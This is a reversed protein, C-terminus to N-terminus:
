AFYLPHCLSLITMSEQEVPTFSSVAKLCSTSVHSTILWCNRRSIIWSRISDNLTGGWGQRRDDIQAWRESSFCIRGDTRYPKPRVRPRGCPGPNLNRARRLISQLFTSRAQEKTFGFGTILLGKMSFQSLNALNPVHLVHSNTLQIHILRTHMTRATEDFMNYREDRLHFM